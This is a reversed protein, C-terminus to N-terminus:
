RIWCPRIKIRQRKKLPQRRWWLHCKRKQQPHKKGKKKGGYAEKPENVAKPEKTGKGKKKTSTSKEGASDTIGSSESPAAAITANTPAAAAADTAAYGKGPAAPVTASRAHNEAMRKESAAKSAPLLIPRPQKQAVTPHASRAIADTSKNNSSKAM